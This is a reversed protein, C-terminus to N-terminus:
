YVGETPDLYLSFPLSLLVEVTPTPRLYALQVVLNSLHDFWTNADLNAACNSSNDPVKVNARKTCPAHLLNRIQFCPLSGNQPSLSRSSLYLIIAM